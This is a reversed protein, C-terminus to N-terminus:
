NVKQTVEEIYSDIDISGDKVQELKVLLQKYWQKKMADVISNMRSILVDKKAKSSTIGKAVKELDKM